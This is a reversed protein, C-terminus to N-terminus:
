VLHHPLFAYEDSTYANVVDTMVQESTIQSIRGDNLATLVFPFTRRVGASKQERAWFPIEEITVTPIGENM